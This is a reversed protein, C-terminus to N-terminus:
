FTHMFRNQGRQVSVITAHERASVSADQQFRRDLMQVTTKNHILPITGTDQLAWGKRQFSSLEVPPMDGPIPPPQVVKRTGHHQDRNKQFDATAEAQVRLRTHNSGYFFGGVGNDDVKHVNLKEPDSEILPRLVVDDHFGRGAAVSEGPFANLVSYQSPLAM